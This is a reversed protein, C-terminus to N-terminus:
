VCGEVELARAASQAPGRELQRRAASLTNLLLCAITMPGVGGPVPTIASAVAKAEDFAVDGVIRTKGAAAQAPDRAPVRNIGVDIVVCGPKLWAGRVLGPVGVAVVVIDAEGCLTALDESYRHAITVTCDATLLLQAMPRGVITSRGIVLARKGRLSPHRERLLTLCGLPTCPTLAPQGTALMGANVVHFGDVDKEPSVAKLVEATNIQPPLPLQVLIGHVRADANLAAILELIEAQSTDAPLRHTFSQLGVEAAQEGKRRVYIRSAPDEGVLIVALGPALGFEATFTQVDTKLAERLKAATAQGDILEAESMKWEDDV